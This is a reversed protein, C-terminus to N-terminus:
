RRTNTHIKRGTQQEHRCTQRGRLKDIKGKTQRQTKLGRGYGVMEEGEAVRRWAEEEEEEAGGWCYGTHEMLANCERARLGATHDYLFHENALTPNREHLM